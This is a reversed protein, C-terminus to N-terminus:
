YDLTDLDRMTAAIERNQEEICQACQHFNIDNRLTKLQHFKDGPYLMKVVELLGDLIQDREFAAGRKAVISYNNMRAETVGSVSYILGIRFTDQENYETKYGHRSVAYEEDTLRVTVHLEVYESNGCYEYRYNIM